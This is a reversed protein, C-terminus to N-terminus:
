QDDFINGARTSYERYTRTVAGGDNSIKFGQFLVNKGILDNSITSEFKTCQADTFQLYGTNNKHFDYAVDGEGQERGRWKFYLRNSSTSRSAKLRKAASVHAKTQANTRKRPLVTFGGSDDGIREEDQEGESLDSFVDGKESSDAEDETAEFSKDTETDSDSRAEDKEIAKCRALLAKRDTGLQMVGYLVGIDFIGVWGEEKNYTIRLSSDEKYQFWNDSAGRCEVAYTGRTSEEKLTMYKNLVPLKKIMSYYRRLHEHWTSSMDERLRAQDISMQESIEFIAARNWGIVLVRFEGEGGISTKLGFIGDAAQQLSLKDALGPLLLPFPTKSRDPKGNENLFYKALFVKCDYNALDVPRKYKELARKHKDESLLSKPQQASPKRPTKAVPEAKRQEVRPSAPNAANFMQELDSQIANVRFPLKKCQM